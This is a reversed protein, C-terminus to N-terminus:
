RSSHLKAIISPLTSSIESKYVDLVKPEDKILKMLENRLEQRRIWNTNPTNLEKLLKEVQNRLNPLLEDAPTGHPFSKSLRQFHLHKEGYYKLSIGVQWSNNM